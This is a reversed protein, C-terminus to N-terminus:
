IEKHLNNLYPIAQRRNNTIIKNCACYFCVTNCFPLHFYLSLPVPILDENTRKALEVYHSEDFGEHFQVATPYSTYRPGSKNYRVILDKDFLVSSIM